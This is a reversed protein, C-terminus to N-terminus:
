IRILSQIQDLGSPVRTFQSQSCWLTKEIDNVIGTGQDHAVVKGLAHHWKNCNRKFLKFSYSSYFPALQRRQDASSRPHSPLSLALIGSTGSKLSPGILLCWFLGFSDPGGGGQQQAPLLFQYRAPSDGCAAALFRGLKSGLIGLPRSEKLNPHQKSPAIHHKRPLCDFFMPHGNGAANNFPRTRMNGARKQSEFVHLKAAARVLSGMEAFSKAEASPREMGYVQGHNLWRCPSRLWARM